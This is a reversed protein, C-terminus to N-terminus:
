LEKDKLEFLEKLPVILINYEKEVIFKIEKSILKKNIKDCKEKEMQTLLLLDQCFTSDQFKIKKLHSHKDVFKEIDYYEEISLSNVNNMSLDFSILKELSLDIKNILDFLKVTCFNNSLNLEELNLLGFNNQMFTCINENSLGCYSLNLKLLSIKVMPSIRLDLLQNICDKNYLLAFNLKKIQYRFTTLNDKLYERYKMANNKNNNVFMNNCLLVISQKERKQSEIAKFFIYNSINNDTLDLVNLEPLCNFNDTIFEYINNKSFDLYKLTKFTCKKDLLIKMNVSTIENGSFSINQLSEVLQTKESLFLFIHSLSQDDLLCKQLYLNQLFLTNGLISEFFYKLSLTLPTRKLKLKKLEPLSIQTLNSSSFDSDIISLSRLKNASAVMENNNNTTININNNNSNNLNQIQNKQKIQNQFISNIEISKLSQFKLKELNNLNEKVFDTELSLNGKNDKKITICSFNNDKKKCLYRSCLESLDKNLIVSSLDLKQFNIKNLFWCNLIDNSNNNIYQQLPNKQQILDTQGLFLRLLGVHGEIADFINEHIELINDFQQFINNDAFELINEDKELKKSFVKSIKLENEKIYNTMKLIYDSYRKEFEKITKDFYSLTKEKVENLQANIIEVFNIDKPGELNKNYISMRAENRNKRKVVDRFINGLYFSVNLNEDEFEGEEMIKDAILPEENNNNNDNLNVINNQSEDNGAIIQDIDLESNIRLLSNNLNKNSSYSNANDDKLSNPIDDNEDNNEKRRKRYNYKKDEEEKININDIKYREEEEENEENEESKESKKEKNEYIINQEENQISKQEEGGEIKENENIIDENINDKKDEKEEEEENIKREEEPINKEEKKNEDVKNEEKQIENEELKRNENDVKNLDQNINKDGKNEM